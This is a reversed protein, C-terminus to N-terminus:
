PPQINQLRLHALVIFLEDGHNPRNPLQHFRRGIRRALPDAEGRLSLSHDALMAAASTCSLSPVSKEAYTWSSFVPGRFYSTFHSFFSRQNQRLKHLPVDSPNAPM